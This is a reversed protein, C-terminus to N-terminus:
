LLLLRNKPFRFITFVDRTQAAGSHVEFDTRFNLDNIEIDVIMKAKTAIKKKKQKRIYKNTDTLPVVQESSGILYKHVM